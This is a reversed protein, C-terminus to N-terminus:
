VLDSNDVLVLKALITDVRWYVLDFFWLNLLCGISPLALAIGKRDVIKLKAM